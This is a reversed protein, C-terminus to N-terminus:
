GLEKKLYYFKRLSIGLLKARERNPINKKLVDEFDDPKTKPRGRKVKPIILKTSKSLANLVGKPLEEAIGPNIIIEEPDLADLILAFTRRGIKTKIHVTKVKGSGRILELYEAKKGKITIKKQSNLSSLM